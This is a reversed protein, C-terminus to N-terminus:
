GGCAHTTRLKAIVEQQSGVEILGTDYVSGKGTRFRQVPDNVQQLYRQLLNAPRPRGGEDM